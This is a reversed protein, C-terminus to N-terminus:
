LRVEFEFPEGRFPWDEWREVLGARVPNDRVYEWKQAYSESSRLVHDFYGKQWHPAQVGDARLKKSMFNKSSKMWASLQGHGNDAALAVFAHWHDPMLVFAGMWSGHDAGARAFLTVCEVMSSNALFKRREHTCATVFYIPGREFIRDLRGLRKGMGM